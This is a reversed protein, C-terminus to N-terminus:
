VGQLPAAYPPRSRPVTAAHRRVDRPDPDLTEAPRLPERVKGGLGLRDREAHVGLDGCVVADGGLLVRRVGGREVVDYGCGAPSQGASEGARQFRTLDFDIRLAILDLRDTLDLELVLHEHDPADGHPIAEGHRLVAAVLDLADVAEV